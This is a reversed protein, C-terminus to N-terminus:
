SGLCITANAVSSTLRTVVSMLSSEVSSQGGAPGGGCLEFAVAAGIALGTAATANQPAPIRHSRPPREDIMSRTAEADGFTTALM